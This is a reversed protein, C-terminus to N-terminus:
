AAGVAVVGRAEVDGFFSQDAAQRLQRSRLQELDEITAGGAVRRMHRERERLEAVLELLDDLGGCAVAIPGTEPFDDSPGPVSAQEGGDRQLHDVVERDDKLQGGRLM